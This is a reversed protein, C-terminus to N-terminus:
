FASLSVVSTRCTQRVFDPLVRDWSVGYAASDTLKSLVSM